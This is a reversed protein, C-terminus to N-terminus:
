KLLWYPIKYPEGFYTGTLYGDPPQAMIQRLNLGLDKEVQEWGLSMLSCLHDEAQFIEKTANPRAWYSGGQYGRDIYPVWNEGPPGYIRSGDISIVRFGTFKEVKPSM